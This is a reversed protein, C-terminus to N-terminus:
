IHSCRVHVLSGAGGFQCFGHAFSVASELSTVSWGVSPCVTTLASISVCRFCSPCLSLVSLAIGPTPHDGASPELALCIWEALNTWLWQWNQLSACRKSSSSSLSLSITSLQSSEGEQWRWVLHVWPQVMWPALMSWDWRNQEFNFTMTVKQAKSSCDHHELGTWKWIHKSRWSSKEDGHM